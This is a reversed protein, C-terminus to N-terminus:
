NNFPLQSMMWINTPCATISGLQRPITILLAPRIVDPSPTFFPMALSLSDGMCEFSENISNNRRYTGSEFDLWLEVDPCLVRFQVMFSTLIAIVDTDVTRVKIKTIESSSTLM